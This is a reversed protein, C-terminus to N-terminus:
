SILKKGGATLVWTILYQSFTQSLDPLFKNQDTLLESSTSLLSFDLPNRADLKDVYSKKRKICNKGIIKDFFLSLQFYKEFPLSEM